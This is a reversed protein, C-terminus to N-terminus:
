TFLMSQYLRWSAMFRMMSVKTEDKIQTTQSEAALPHSSKDKKRSPGRHRKREKKPLPPTPAAAAASAAIATAAAITPKNNDNRKMDPDAAASGPIAPKRDDNYRIIHRGATTPKHDDNSKMPSFADQGIDIGSSHSM